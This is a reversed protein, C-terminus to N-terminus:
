GPPAAENTIQKKNNIQRTNQNYRNTIATNKFVNVEKLFSNNSLPLMLLHHVMLQFSSIKIGLLERSQAHKVTNTFVPKQYIQFQLTEQERSM